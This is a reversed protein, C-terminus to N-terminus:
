PTISGKKEAPGKPSPPYALSQEMKRADVHLTARSRQTATM